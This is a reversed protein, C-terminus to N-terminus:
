MEDECKIKYSLNSTKVCGMWTDAEPFGTWGFLTYTDKLAFRALANM